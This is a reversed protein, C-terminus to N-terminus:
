HSILCKHFHKSAYSPPMYPFYEGLGNRGPLQSSAIEDDAVACPSRFKPSADKAIYEAQKKSNKKVKSSRTEMFSKSGVREQRM